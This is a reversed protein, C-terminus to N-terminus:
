PHPELIVDKWYWWKIASVPYNRIWPKVLLHSRGYIFPVVAASNILIREAEHYMEMRRGQDTAERAQIVLREFNADKWCAWRVADCVRLFNDPDPYDAMWMDLFIHPPRDELREVFTEWEVGAWTIPVGLNRQWQTELYKGPPENSQETLVTVPPFGAGDPFGAEALLARARDPNHPLGLAAAHGPMGPPILGGAAPFVYGQMELDAFLEKDIAHAFARRVRPDDFPPRDVNFALYTTALLPASLYAEPHQQRVRERKGGLGWLFLLDLDGEEYARLRTDGDPLFRLHVQEVNGSVRGHYDPNRSLVLLDDQEQPELRFPGNTVLHEPETWAAGHSEIIHRPVAYSANYTLLHLFYSTPSELEVVLTADDPATVGLTAPDTTEGHHYARAGKINFLV